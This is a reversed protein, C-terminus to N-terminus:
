ASTSFSVMYVNSTFSCFSISLILYFQRVKIKSSDPINFETGANRFLPIVNRNNEIKIKLLLGHTNYM